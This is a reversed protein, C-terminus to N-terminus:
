AALVLETNRTPVKVGAWNDEVHAEVGITQGNLIQASRAMMIEQVEAMISVTETEDCEVIIEDQICSVLQARGKVKECFDLLGLKVAEACSGQIM